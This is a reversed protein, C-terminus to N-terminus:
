SKQAKVLLQTSSYLFFIGKNLGKGLTETHTLLKPKYLTNLIKSSAWQFYRNRQVIECPKVVQLAPCPMLEEM